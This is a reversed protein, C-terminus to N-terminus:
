VEAEKELGLYQEVAGMLADLPNHGTAIKRHEVCQADHVVWTKRDKDLRLIVGNNALTLRYFCVEPSPVLAGPGHCDPCPQKCPSTALCHSHERYAEPDHCDCDCEDLLKVKTGRQELAAAIRRYRAEHPATTM